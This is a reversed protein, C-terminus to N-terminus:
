LIVYKLVLMFVITVFGGMMFLLRYYAINDKRKWEAETTGFDKKATKYVWKKPMLLLLLTIAIYLGTAIYPLNEKV